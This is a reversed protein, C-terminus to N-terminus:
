AVSDPAKGKVTQGVLRGLAIMGPYFNPESCSVDLVSKPEDPLFLHFVADAISYTLGSDYRAVMPEGRGLLKRRRFHLSDRTFRAGAAWNATGDQEVAALLREAVLGAIRDRLWELDDDTGRRSSSLQAGRSGGAPWVKLDYTTGTYVGNYYQRTASYRLRDIDRFHLEGRRIISRRVLRLEYCDVAIPALGITAGLVAVGAAVAAAGVPVSGGAILVLGWGIGAVGLVGAVVVLLAGAAPRRSFLLRGADDPTPGTAPLLRELLARLVLANASAAPPALLPRVHGGEWVKVREDFLAVHTLASLPTPTRGRASLGAGDLRWGQGELAAGAGLSDHAREALREIAMGIFEGALDPEGDLAVHVFSFSEASTVVTLRRWTGKRVGNELQERQRCALSKVEDYPAVHRRGFRTLALGHEYLVLSVRAGSRRYLNLVGAALAVVGAILATLAVQWDEGRDRVWVGAAIGAAGLLVLFLSGAYNRLPRPPLRYPEGLQAGLRALRNLDDIQRSSADFAQM